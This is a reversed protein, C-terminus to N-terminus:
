FNSEEDDLGDALTVDWAEAEGSEAWEKFAEEYMDGLVIPDIKIKPDAM